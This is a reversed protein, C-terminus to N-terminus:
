GERLAALPDLRSARRAPLLCAGTAVVALVISASTLSIPDIPSVGFLVGSLLTGVAASAGIGVAIGLGVLAIGQRLVLRLVTARKAGLAMRVGIERQRQRVAHAMAAYLGLSALGLAIVGFLTLLGVGITAGFLSNGIVTQISRVDSVEIHPDIARVERQVTSLPGAPDGDTRIYLVAADSFAQSLPLYVCPQPAEGLSGYSVTKAIGVVEVMTEEDGLRMRRGIPDVGPDGVRPSQANPHLGPWARAALTENVIAVPPSDNRDADTFDRGRIMAIGTTAFYDVDIANAITMIAGARDRQEQGEATVSRSPRAFLPMHTAWTASVIGPSASLRTRVERYFQESRERAYGAQGPSILAIGMRETEFGPDVAYAQQLSRLLLGATVLSVLSLAVQGVMLAKGITFGRRREGVSRGDDKLARVVDARTSQWAPVLGFIVSTIVSLVMAFLLVTVDVNLEILNAAVEPPRFSWLVRAGAYALAFGVIGSVGALVSSETLLQRILRRRGSGLALRVAIEHRRTAARALLLHAVNSCAILLVLGPIALLVISMTAASMSGESALAARSLPMVALSRGRNADPHEQELTAAITVLHASAQAASVGAKLRGVGRFSLASRNRLWDRNQAPLVSEAMMAPIWVDPGFVADLGIFGKPAVGIVTFVVGNIRLTRGVIDPAGAFRIQWAAHSMVLVPAAGPTSDEEARFFRGAAPHLGLTEFFNGTVLRGFLRRPTNEELMTLITPSSYGALSDLVQNRDGIDKLNPHSISLIDTSRAGVDTTRITVLEAPRAVPLPNLFLTNIVTFVTTNAGIGFALTLVVVLSFGPSQGLARFAGRLDQWLTDMM